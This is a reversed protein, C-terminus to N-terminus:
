NKITWFDSAIKSTIFQYPMYFYGKDGWSPGWSNRIILKQTLDSYGVALVCHGGLAEENEGPMQAIGTRAVEDSEFEEYVTFGFVVPKGEALSAKIEGLTKLSYYNKITKKIAEKYSTASPKTKYKKIVYPWRSENCVGYKSLSKMTNRISCGSDYNQSGELLRTNYYLFLRSLNTYRTDPVNDLFELLGIAANATCSGISLQDEVASCKSRLDVSKPLDVIQRVNSFKYDRQDQTDPRWNFIHKEM